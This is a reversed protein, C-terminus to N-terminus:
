AAVFNKIVLNAWVRKPEGDDNKETPHLVFPQYTGDENKPFNTMGKVFVPTGKRGAEWDLYARFPLNATSEIANALDQATQFVGTVGCAKLYDGIQSVNM